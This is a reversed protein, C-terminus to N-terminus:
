ILWPIYDSRYVINLSIVHEYYFFLLYCILIGYYVLKREKTVFLHCIWSILVINFFDLYITMRAFIWNQTSIVMFIFTLISLNVMCDAYPCIRRLKERGMYALLLPIGYVAVRMVNAGGETFNKYQGYQTSELASFLVESFENYGFVLLVAAMLLCFTTGTWAKRRVLFYIPIMILASQHITAALLVILTYAKWRGQFLYRSAAFIIAAALCQRIGNMSVLFLGSTIYVYLSLELMRAYTRFTMVVLVNTLLAVTFVLMQPDDTFSQLAMQILIFGVDKGTRVDEWTYTHMDFAHMYFFTDGINNQLGAVLVMCAMTCVVYFLHPKVAHMLGGRKLADATAGRWSFALDGEGPADALSPKAFNRALAAFLYVLGLNWWLVTM